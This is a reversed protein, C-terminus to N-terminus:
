ESPTTLPPVITVTEGTTGDPLVEYLDLGAGDATPTFAVHGGEIDSSIVAQGDETAQLTLAKGITDLPAPASHMKTAIGVAAPRSAFGSKIQM